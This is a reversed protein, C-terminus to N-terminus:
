RVVAEMVSSRLSTCDKYKEVWFLYEAGAIGIGLAAGSRVPEPKSPLSCESICNSWDTAMSVAQQIDSSHRLRCRLLISLVVIAKSQVSSGRSGQAYSLLKDWLLDWDKILIQESKRKVSIFCDLALLLCRQDTEISILSTLSEDLELNIVHNNESLENLCELTAIRTEREM